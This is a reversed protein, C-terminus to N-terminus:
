PRTLTEDLNLLVNAVVVRAAAEAPDADTEVAAAKLLQKAADTNSQFQSAAQKHMEVLRNLEAPEAFRTLVRRFM